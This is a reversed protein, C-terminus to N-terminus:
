SASEPLIVVADDCYVAPHDAPLRRWMRNMIIVFIALGILLINVVTSIPFIGM